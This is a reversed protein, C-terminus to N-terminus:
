SFRQTLFGDLCLAGMWRVCLTNFREASRIPLSPM